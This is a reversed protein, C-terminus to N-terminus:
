GVWILDIKCNLLPRLDDTGMSLLHIDNLPHGVLTM